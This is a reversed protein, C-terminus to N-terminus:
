ALKADPEMVIQQVKPLASQTETKEHRYFPGSFFIYKM